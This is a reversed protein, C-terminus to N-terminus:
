SQLRSKIKFLCAHLAGTSTPASTAILRMLDTHEHVETHVGAGCAQTIEAQM